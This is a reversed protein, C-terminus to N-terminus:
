GGVTLRDGHLLPVSLTGRPAGFTRLGEWDLAVPEAAAADYGRAPDTVVPGPSRELTVGRLAAATAPARRGLGDLVNGVTTGIPVVRQEGDVTIRLSPKLVTRGRFYAVATKPVVPWTAAAQLDAFKSAAVLAFQQRTRASAAANPSILDHPVFLRHFPTRFAPFFLDAAEAGGTEAFDPGPPASGAVPAEVELLSNGALWALFADFGVLWESGGFYDGVEYDVVAGGAYGNAATPSREAPIADFESFAVRLVMGPALDVCGKEVDLGYAYLLTEEFTQPMLRAVAAQIAFLGWPKAAGIKEDAAESLLTIFTERLTTRTADFALAGHDITLTYPFAASSKPDANAALVFPKTAPNTGPQVPALPLKTPDLGMPPLYATQPEAEITEAAARQLRPPEGAGLYIGPSFLPALARPGSSPGFLAQVSVQRGAERATTTLTVAAERAGAGVEAKGLSTAGGFVDIAYGSAGAVGRWRVTATTGDFSVSEVVPMETPVRFRPGPPGEISGPPAAAEIAVEWDREPELTPIPAHTATTSKKEVMMGDVYRRVFYTAAPHTPVMNWFVTTAGTLGDTVAATVRPGVVLPQFPASEPGEAGQGLAAVTVTLDGTLVFPLSQTPLPLRARPEAVTAEAVVQDFHRVVVRWSSAGAPSSSWGVELVSGDFRSAEITPATLIAAVPGLAPGSGDGATVAVTLAAASDAAVAASWSSGAVRFTREAGGAMLALVAGTVRADAPPTWTARLTGEAYRLFLGEPTGALVPALNALPGIAAGAQARVGIAAGAPVAAPLSVEASGSGAPLPALDLETDEWRVVPVFGTPTPGGPGLSWALSVTRGDAHCAATVPCAATVLPLAAPPGSVRGDRPTIALEFPASAASTLDLEAALGTVSTTAVLTGGADTIAVAYDAAPVESWAATVRGDAFEATGITPAATLATLRPSAPGVAAATEGHLSVEYTPGAPATFAVSGDVLAKMQPNQGTQFLTAYLTLGTSPLDGPSGSVTLTGEAWAVADLAPAALLAAAKAAPGLAAGARPRVALEYTARPDIPTDVALHLVGDGPVERELTQVAEGNRLLALQYGSLTAGTGSPATVAASLVSGDFSPKGLTAAALLVPLPTLAPGAAGGARAVVGVTYASAPKAASVDLRAPPGKVSKAGTATGAEYLTALYASAGGPVADWDVTLTGGEAGALRPAVGARLVPLAESRPGEAIGAQTVLAVELPVLPDAALTPITITAPSTGLDAVLKEEEGPSSFVAACQGAGAVGAFTLTVKEGAVTAGELRPPTVVLATGAAATAEASGALADVRLEAAASPGLAMGPVLSGGLGAVIASRVAVGGVWLSLRYSTAIAADPAGQPWAWAAVVREGDFRVSSLAPTATLLKLAASSPGAGLATTCSARVTLTLDPALLSAPLTVTASTGPLNPFTVAEGSSPTVVVTTSAAPPRAPPEWELSLQTGSVVAGTIQPAAPVAVAASEPGSSAAAGVGQASTAAVRVEYGAQGGTAYPIAAVPKDAGADVRAGALREGARYLAAEYSGIGATAAPPEVTVEVKADTVTVASVGPVAALVAITPGLPGRSRAAIWRLGVAYPGPAAGLPVEIAGGSAAAPLDLHAIEGGGQLVVLSCGTAGAPATAQWGAILRAGDYRASSLAPPQAAFAPVSPGSPGFSPERLSAVSVAYATGPALPPQPEFSGESVGFFAATRAAEGGGVPAVAVITGNPWPPGPFTSWSTTVTSGAVEVARVTPSEVLVAVAAGRPGRAEEQWWFPRVEWAIGPAPAAGLPIEVVAGNKGRASQVLVGDAYLDAGAVCAGPVPQVLLVEIRPEAGPEYTMEAIRASATVLQLEIGPGFSQGFLPRGQLTYSAGPELPEPLTLTGDSGFLSARTVVDGSPDLVTLQAGNTPGGGQPLTWAAEIQAPEATAALATLRGPIVRMTNGFPGQQGNEVAAVAVEYVDGGGVPLPTTLKVTGTSGYGEGKAFEDGDKFLVVAFEEYGPLPQWVARIAPAVDDYTLEALTPAPLTANPEPSSM